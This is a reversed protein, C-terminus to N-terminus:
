GSRAAEILIAPGHAQLKDAFRTALRRKQLGGDQELLQEAKMAKQRDVGPWARNRRCASGSWHRQLVPHGREAVDDRYRLFAHEGAVAPNNMVRRGPRQQFSAPRGLSPKGTQAFKSAATAVHHSTAAPCLQEKQVLRDRKRCTMARTEEATTFGCLGKTVGPREGPRYPRRPGCFHIGDQVSLPEVVSALPQMGQRTRRVFQGVAA